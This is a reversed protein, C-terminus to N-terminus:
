HKWLIQQNIWNIAIYDKLKSTNIITDHLLFMFERYDFKFYKHLSMWSLLTYTVRINDLWFAQFMNLHEQEYCLLVVRFSFKYLFIFTFVPYCLTYGFYVYIINRTYIIVKSGFICNLKWLIISFVKFDFRSSQMSNISFTNFVLHMTFQKWILRLHALSPELVCLDDLTSLRCYWCVNKMLKKSAKEYRVRQWM